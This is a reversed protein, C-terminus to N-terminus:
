HTPEVHVKVTVRPVTLFRVQPEPIYVALVQESDGKVQSLDLPDSVAKKVAAVRSAPGAISLEPPQVEISTITLGERLTGSEPVEVKLARETRHEFTFRLQAPITRVLAIGRPLNLEKQTLTFTREGPANVSSFDIIASIQSETLARLQGSPGRAEIDIAEVINSSIELDRPYNKYEVPASFITELEPESAVNFWVGLAAALALLKWGINHTLYKM